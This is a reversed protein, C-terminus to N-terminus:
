SERLVARVRHLLAYPAYPGGLFVPGRELGFPTTVGAVDRSVYLVKIGPRERRIADAAISSGSASRIVGTILLDIQAGRERVAQMAEGGHHAVLTSYGNAELTWRIMHRLSADDEVVLVTGGFAQTPHSPRPRRAHGSLGLCWSGFRDIWDSIKGTEGRPSSALRDLYGTVPECSDLSAM